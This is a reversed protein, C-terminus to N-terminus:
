LHLLSTVTRLMPSLDPLISIADVQVDPSLNAKKGGV